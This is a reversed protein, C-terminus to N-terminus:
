ENLSNIISYYEFFFCKDFIMTISEIKKKTKNKNRKEKKEVGYITVCQVFMFSDDDDDDDCVIVVVIRYSDISLLLLSIKNRSSFM